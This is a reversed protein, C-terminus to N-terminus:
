RAGKAYISVGLLIIGEIVAALSNFDAKIFQLAFAGNIFIGLGINKLLEVM